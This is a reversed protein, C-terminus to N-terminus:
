IAPERQKRRYYEYALYYIWYILNGVLVNFTLGFNILWTISEGFGGRGMIHLWFWIILTNNFLGKLFAQRPYDDAKRRINKLNEYICWCVILTAIVATISELLWGWGLPTQDLARIIGGSLGLILSAFAVILGAKKENATPRWKRTIGVGIQWGIITLIIVKGVFWGINVGGTMWAGINLFILFMWHIFDLCCAKINIEKGQEIASLIDMQGSIVALLAIPPIFYALHFVANWGIFGDADSKVAVYAGLALLGLWYGTGLLWKILRIM